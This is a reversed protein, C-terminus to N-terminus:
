SPSDEEGWEPPAIHVAEEDSGAEEHLDEMLEDMAGIAGSLREINQAVLQRTRQIRAMKEHEENLAIEYEERKAQLKEIM